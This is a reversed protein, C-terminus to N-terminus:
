VIPRKNPIGPQRPYKQPTLAVKDIVVLQRVDELEAIETRRIEKIKGGLESIAKTAADIEAIVDGKKMAIVQGGIRCLPLTLEALIAMPALGRSVVVDFSERRDEHHAIDESRANIIEVEELLLTSVIASLFRTKKGTAELLTLKISHLWIKLPIGPFGAGTGVDILKVPHSKDLFTALTLSDLFHKVQVPEYETVATLNFRRNWSVLEQYYIEFQKLQAPTLIIGLRRAGQDLIDMMLRNYCSCLVSSLVPNRM